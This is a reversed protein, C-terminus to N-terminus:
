HGIRSAVRTAWASDVRENNFSAAVGAMYERRREAESARQAQVDQETMPSAAAPVARESTGARQQSALKSEMVSLSQQLAAVQETLQAVRADDASPSSSAAAPAEPASASEHLYVGVGVALVLAGIATGILKM